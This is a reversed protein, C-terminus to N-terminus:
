ICQLCWILYISVYGYFRVTTLTGNEWNSELMYYHISLQTRSNVTQRLEQISASDYIFNAKWCHGSVVSNVMDKVPKTNIPRLAPLVRKLSQQDLSLIVKNAKVYRIEDTTVNRIGVTYNYEDDSKDISVLESYLQIKNNVSHQTINEALKWVLM